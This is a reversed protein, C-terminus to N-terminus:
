SIALLASAQYQFAQSPTLWLPKLRRPTRRWEALVIEAETEPAVLLLRPEEILSTGPLLALRVLVSWGFQPLLWQLQSIRWVIWITESLNFIGNSLGVLSLLSMLAAVQRRLLAVM